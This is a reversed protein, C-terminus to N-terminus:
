QVPATDALQVRIGALTFSRAGAVSPANGRESNSGQESLADPRTSEQSDSGYATRSLSEPGGRLEGFSDEFQACGMLGIACLSIFVLKLTMESARELISVM